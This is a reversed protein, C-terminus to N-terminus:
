WVRRDSSGHAGGVRTSPDDPPHLGGRQHVAEIEHLVWRTVRVGLALPRPFTPARAVYRHLTPESCGLLEAVERARMLRLGVYPSPLAQGPLWLPLASRMGIPPLGGSPRGLMRAYIFADLEHQRLSRDRAWRTISQPAQRARELLRLHNSSVALARRVEERTLWVLKRPHTITYLTNEPGPGSECVADTSTPKDPIRVDM